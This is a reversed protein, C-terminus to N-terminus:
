SEKGLREAWKAWETRETRRIDNLRHALTAQRDSGAYDGARADYLTRESRLDEATRRYRVWNAQQNTSGDVIEIFSVGLAMAAPIWGPFGTTILFAILASGSAALIRTALSLYRARGAHSEFWRLQDELETRTSDTGNVQGTEKSRDSMKIIEGLRDRELSYFESPDRKRPRRSLRSVDISRGLSVRERVAATRTHRAGDAAPSSTATAHRPLVWSRSM